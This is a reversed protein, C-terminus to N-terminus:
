RLIQALSRTVAHSGRFATDQPEHSLIILERRRTDSRRPARATMFARDYRVRYVRHPACVQRHRDGALPLGRHEDRDVVTGGFADADMGRLASGAELREFWDALAHAVM